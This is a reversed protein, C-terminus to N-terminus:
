IMRIVLLFYKECSMLKSLILSFILIVCLAFECKKGTELTGTLVEAPVKDHDAGILAFSQKVDTSVRGDNVTGFAVERAPAGNDEHKEEEKEEEEVEAEEDSEEEVMYIAGDEEETRHPPIRPPKGRKNGIGQRTVKKVINKASQVHIKRALKAARRVQVEANARLAAAAPTDEEINPYKDEDINPSNLHGLFEASVGSAADSSVYGPLSSTAASTNSVIDSTDEGPRAPLSSHNTGSDNMALTKQGSFLESEEAKTQGSKSTDDHRSGSNANLSTM